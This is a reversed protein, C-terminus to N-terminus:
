RQCQNKRLTFMVSSSKYMLISLDLLYFLCCVRYVAFSCSGSIFLELLHKVKKESLQIASYCIVHCSVYFLKILSCLLKVELLMEYIEVRELIFLKRRIFSPFYITAGAFNSKQEVNFLTCSLLCSVNKMIPAFSSITHFTLNMCNEWGDLSCYICCIITSFFKM